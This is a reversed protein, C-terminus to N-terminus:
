IKTSAGQNKLPTANISLHIFLHQKEQNHM